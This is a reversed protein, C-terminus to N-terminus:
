SDKRFSSLEWGRVLAALTGIAMKAVIDGWLISGIM